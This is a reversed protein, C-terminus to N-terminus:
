SISMQCFWNKLLERRWPIILTPINIRSEMHFLCVMRFFPVCLWLAKHKPSPLRAASLPVEMLRSVLKSITAIRSSPGKKDAQEETGAFLLGPDAAIVVEPLAIGAVLSVFTAADEDVASVGTISFAVDTASVM